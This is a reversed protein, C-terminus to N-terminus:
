SFFPGPVRPNKFFVSSLCPHKSIYNLKDIQALSIRRRLCNRLSSPPTAAHESCILGLLSLSALLVAESLSHRGRVASLDQLSSARLTTCPKGILSSTHIAEANEVFVESTISKRLSAGRGSMSIEPLFQRKPAGSFLRDACHRVIGRAASQSAPRVRDFSLRKGPKEESFGRKGKIGSFLIM